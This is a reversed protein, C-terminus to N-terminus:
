STSPEIGNPEVMDFGQFPKPIPRERFRPPRKRKPQTTVASAEVAEGFVGMAVAGAM